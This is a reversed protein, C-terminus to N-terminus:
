GQDPETPPVDVTALFPKIDLLATGDLVDIADIAIRGAAVDIAVIRVLHLGIPNPRVPSRLSFTGRPTEAHRPMQVALDRRAEGLWTLIHVYQGVELDGLGARFPAAIQLTAAAEAGRERAARLNKPCDSRTNFPSAIRGIFALRADDARAPDVDFAREGPRISGAPPPIDNM